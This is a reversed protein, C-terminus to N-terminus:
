SENGVKEGAVASQGDSVPIGIATLHEAFDEVTTFQEARMGVYRAALVNELKNDIFFVREPVVQLAEAAIRYIAPAPKIVEAEASNVVVTFLDTLGLRDLDRHLGTTNNTLLGIPTGGAQVRRLLAVMEPDVTGPDDQWPDIAESAKPGFHDVLHGRVAELWQEHTFVGVNALAFEMGYGLERISGKPIGALQEGRRRGHGPWHRIVGDLDCLLVPPPTM